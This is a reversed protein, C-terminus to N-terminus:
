AQRGFVGAVFDAVTAEIEDSDEQSVGLYPRAPITVKRGRGAKGGLQHIRAYAVNSGVMVGDSITIADISDRLRGTDSLTKGFGGDESGERWARGSPEWKKGNPDEGDEFRKKTSSVLAEGATELLLQRDAMRRAADGLMRDLGNWNLSVGNRSM